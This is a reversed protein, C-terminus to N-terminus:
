PGLPKQGLEVFRTDLKRLEVAKLRQWESLTADLARSLQTYATRSDASPDADAGDVAHALARLNALLAQLSDTRLPPPSAANPSLPPNPPLGSVQSVQQALGDLEAAAAGAEARRSAIVKLLKGAEASATTARVRAAEVQRALEFERRFAGASLKIRPDAAVELPAVESRGEATLEITYHGPPAWVGAQRIGTAPAALVPPLPYHLDWVFRHMGRSVGLRGPAPVWEPAFELKTPDPAAASDASSFRRVLRHQGDFVTLMVPGRADAGLAYDIMAGAPPNVAM